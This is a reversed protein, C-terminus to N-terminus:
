GIMPLPAFSPKGIVFYGDILDRAMTDDARREIRRPKTYSAYFRNLARCPVDHSFYFADRQDRM